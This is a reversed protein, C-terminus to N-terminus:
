LAIWIRREACKRASYYGIFAQCARGTSLPLCDTALRSTQVSYGDPSMAGGGDQM